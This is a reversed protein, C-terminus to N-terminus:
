LLQFHIVLLGDGWDIKGKKMNLIHSECFFDDIDSISIDQGYVTSLSSLHYGKSSMMNLFETINIERFMPHMEVIIHKPRATLTSLIEIESGECDLELVDFIMKNIDIYDVHRITSENVVNTPYGAFSNILIYQSDNIDNLHANMITHNINNISAEIGIFSKPTRAKSCNHVLSIGSGLGVALIIDHNDYIKDHIKLIGLEDKTNPENLILHRLTVLINKIRSPLIFDKYMVRNGTSLTKYRIVLRPVRNRFAFFLKM